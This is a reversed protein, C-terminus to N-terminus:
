LLNLRPSVTGSSSSATSLVAASLSPAASFSPMLFWLTTGDLGGFSLRFVILLNFASFRLHLGSGSERMGVAESGGTDAASVRSGVRSGRYGLLDAVRLETLGVVEMLGSAVGCCVAFSGEGGGGGGGEDSWVLGLVRGM